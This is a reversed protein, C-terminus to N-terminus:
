SKKWVFKLAVIVGKQIIFYCISHGVRNSYSDFYKQGPTSKHFGDTEPMSMWPEIIFIRNCDDFLKAQALTTDNKSDYLSSYILLNTEDYIIRLGDNVYFFHYDPMLKLEGNTFDEWSNEFSEILMRYENWYYGSDGVWKIVQQETLVLLFPSTYSKIAVATM